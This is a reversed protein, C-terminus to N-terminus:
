SFLVFHKLTNEWTPRSKDRFLVLLERQPFATSSPISFSYDFCSSFRSLARRTRLSQVTEFLLHKVTHMLLFVFLVEKQFFGCWMWTLIRWIGQTELFFTYQPFSVYMFLVYRKKYLIHLRYTKLPWHELGYYKPTYWHYLFLNDLSVSHHFEFLIGRYM